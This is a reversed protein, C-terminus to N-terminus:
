ELKQCSKRYKRALAAITKPIENFIIIYLLILGAPFIFMDALNWIWDGFHIFDRVGGGYIIADYGNGLWGATIFGMCWILDWRFKKAFALRITLYVLFMVAAYPLIKIPVRSIDSEGRHIIPTFRIVGPIIELSRVWVADISTPNSEAQVIAFVIYKSAIDLITGGLAIIIFVTIYKKRDNM